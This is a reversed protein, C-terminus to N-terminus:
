EECRTLELTMENDQGYIEILMTNDVPKHYTIRQPFDHKMNECILVTDSQIVNFVIPKGDNQEFVKASFELGSENKQIVLAELHITDTKTIAYSNGVMKEEEISWIEVSKTSDFMTYWCGDLWVPFKPTDDCECSILFLSLLIFIIAKNM